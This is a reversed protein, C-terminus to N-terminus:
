SHVFDSKGKSREIRNNSHREIIHLNIQGDGSLQTQPQKTCSYISQSNFLLWLQVDFVILFVNVCLLCFFSFFSFSVSKTWATLYVRPSVRACWVAGLGTFKIEISLPLFPGMLIYYKRKWLVIVTLTNRKEHRTSYAGQWKCLACPRRGLWLYIKLM